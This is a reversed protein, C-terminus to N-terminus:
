DTAAGTATPFRFLSPLNWVDEGVDELGLDCYLDATMQLTRHRMLIKVKQIPMVRAMMTCFTYRLSHFDVRRGEADTRAIGARKLDRTLMRCGPIVPFLRSTPTPLKEWLPRLVPALDPLMPVVDARRNKSIEARLKWCPRGGAPDLDRKELLLLENRRLGSLGAAFYIVGHRTSRAVLREFEKATYARRPRAKKRRAKKLGDLPHETIWGQERCWALFLGLAEQHYNVTRASKGAAKLGGLFRTVRDRRVDSLSKFDCAAALRGVTRRMKATAYGELGVRARDREWLDLLEGLPKRRQEEDAVPLGAAERESRVELQRALARTADKDTFGPVTRYRGDAGRYSITWKRAKVVKGNRVYKRRYISAM